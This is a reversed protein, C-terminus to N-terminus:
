WDPAYPLALWVPLGLAGALHPVATDSSIVLDLNKMIAATDMFSGHVTDFDAGLDLIPLRESATVLEDRGEGKQLSVLSVGPLQALTAFYELAIDRKRFGGQGPRGQWHHRRALRQCEEPAR